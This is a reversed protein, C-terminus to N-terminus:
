AAAGPDGNFPAAAILYGDADIALEVTPLGTQAPGAVAEGGATADFESMHCFCRWHKQQGEWSTISCGKHTCIASFALVGASTAGAKVDALRVLNIMNLRTEKRFQGSVPNVPYVGMMAVGPQLDDPRLPKPAGEVDLAFRDGTQLTSKPDAEDDGAAIADGCVALLCGCAVLGGLVARRGVPATNLDAEAQTVDQGRGAAAPNISPM